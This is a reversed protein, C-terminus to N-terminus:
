FRLVLEGMPARGRSTAASRLGVGLPAWRDTKILAGIITGLGGFFLTSGGIADGRSCFSASDKSYCREPDVPFAYGIAIGTLVGVGLGKLTNRRQGLSVDMDTISAFPVKLPMGGEPALTLVTDDVAVVLGRVRAQVSTSTVRIRSGPALTSLTVAASPTQGAASAAGALLTALGVVVRCLYTRSM